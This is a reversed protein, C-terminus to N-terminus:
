IKEDEVADKKHVNIHIQFYFGMVMDLYDAYLCFLETHVSEDDVQWFMSLDILMGINYELEDVHDKNWVDFEDWHYHLPTEFGSQEWTSVFVNFPPILSTLTEGREDERWFDRLYKQQCALTLKFEEFVLDGEDM